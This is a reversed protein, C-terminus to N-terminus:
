YNTNKEKLKLKLRNIKTGVNSESIGLIQSIERHSKDDLYLLLLAKDFNNMGDIQQYLLKIHEMAGANENNDAIEFVSQDYSLNNDNYRKEKRLFSIATNLAVRYIWTSIKSENKFKPFSLYLQLLIEQEMDRQLDSNHTYLHLIKYIIKKHEDISTVFEEKMSDPKM